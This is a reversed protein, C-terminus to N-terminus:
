RRYAVGAPHLMNGLDGERAGHFAAVPVIDLQPALRFFDQLVFLALAFVEQDEAAGAQHM